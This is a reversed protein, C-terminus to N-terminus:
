PAFYPMLPALFNYPLAFVIFISIGLIWFGFKLAILFEAFFKLTGVICVTLFKTFAMGAFIIAGKFADASNIFFVALFTFKVFM